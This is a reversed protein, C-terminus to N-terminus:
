SSVLFQFFSYRERVCRDVTSSIKREPDAGTALNHIASRVSEIQRAQVGKWINEDSGFDMLSQSIRAYVISSISVDIGNQITKVIRPDNSM